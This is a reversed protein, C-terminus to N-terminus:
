MEFGLKTSLNQDGQPTLMELMGKLRAPVKLCRCVALIMLMALLNVYVAGKFCILWCNSVFHFLKSMM